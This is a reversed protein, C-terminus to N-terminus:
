SGPSSRQAYAFADHVSLFIRGDLRQGLATSRLRDM